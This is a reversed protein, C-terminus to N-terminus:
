TFELFFCCLKINIEFFLLPCVTICLYLPFYVFIFTSAFLFDNNESLNLCSFRFINCIHVIDHMFYSHFRGMIMILRWKDMERCYNFSKFLFCCQGMSAKATPGNLRRQEAQSVLNPRQARCYAYIYRVVSLACFLAIKWGLLVNTNSTINKLGFIWSESSKHM